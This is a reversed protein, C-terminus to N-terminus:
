RKRAIVVGRQALEVAADEALDLNVATEQMQSRVTPARRRVTM